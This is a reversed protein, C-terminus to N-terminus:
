KQLSKATERVRPEPDTQAIQGEYHDGRNSYSTVDNCCALLLLVLRKM